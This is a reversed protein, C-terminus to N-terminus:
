TRLWSALISVQGYVRDLGQKLQKRLDEMESRKLSLDKNCDKLIGESSSVKAQIQQLESNRGQM